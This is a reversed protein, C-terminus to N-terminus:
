RESPELKTEPKPVSVGCDVCFWGLDGGDALVPHQCDPKPLSPETAVPNM